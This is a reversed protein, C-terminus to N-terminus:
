DESLRTDARMRADTAASFFQDWAVRIRDLKAIASSDVRRGASVVYVFAQRYVRPSQAASPVRSGLVAIVDDITVNRRTGNFTVGVEPDSEATIRPPLNIPNQVYFFPPVDSQDVLGMAYQDLLSYREVAAVTRFSGNGLDEIDNGEMVSADSDFFFSWHSSDRGLLARSPRGNTDRFNLFALWRHGV